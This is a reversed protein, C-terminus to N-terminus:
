PLQKTPRIIIENIAVDMLYNTQKTPRILIESVAVTEPTHVCLLLM